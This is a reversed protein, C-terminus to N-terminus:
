APRTPSDSGDTHPTTTPVRRLILWCVWGGMLFLPWGMALKAVGLAVVWGALYLPLQVALRLAFMAVWVWSALAYARYRAPDSRWATGEGVLPGIVVGILPWRVLISLAYAAGYGANIFLGPLFFNRAEGTRHAIFAAIAVGVFGALAHQLTERRVLRVVTLLVGVGVAAWLAPTLSTLTFVAVFVIGPLGSDLLGRRGGLAQALTDRQAEALTSQQTKSSEPTPEGSM